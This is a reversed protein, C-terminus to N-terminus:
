SMPGPRAMENGDQDHQGGHGAWRWRVRGGGGGGRPGAGGGGGGGGGGGAAGGRWRVRGVAAGRRHGAWWRWAGRGGGLAAWWSLRGRGAGDDVAVPGAGVGVGTAGVRGRCARAGGVGADAGDIRAPTNYSMDM